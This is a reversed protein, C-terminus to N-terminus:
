LSTARNHKKRGSEILDVISRNNSPQLKQGIKHEWNRIVNVLGPYNISLAYAQAGSQAPCMWCATRLFGQDYGEWVPVGSSKLVSELVGKDVDFAPYYYQYKSMTTDPAASSKSKKTMRTAQDARSGGIIITEEPPLTKFYKNIPDYIFNKQCSRHIINPWGEKLVHIWMDKEPKVIQYKVDMFDCVEKVHAVFGPFEVGTDSFVAIIEKDPFNQKAWVLAFTSDKGGSFMICITKMNEFFEICENDPTMAVSADEIYEIDHGMLGVGPRYKADHLKIDHVVKDIEFDDFGTLEIDFDDIGKLEEFILNLKKNDWGGSNKNLAINLAKEKSEDFDVVSVDVETDGRDKLIKLRQHGGVLVSNKENMILPEVLDFEDISKKLKQYEPDSPKLDKRPNYPAPNIDSIKVKKIIM